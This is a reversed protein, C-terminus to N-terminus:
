LVCVTHRWRFEFWCGEAHFSVWRGLGSPWASLGKMTGTRNVWLKGPSIMHHVLKAIDDSQIGYQSVLNM